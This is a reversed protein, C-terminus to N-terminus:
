KNVWRRTADRDKLQWLHFTVGAYVLMVLIPNVWFCKLNNLVKMINLLLPSWSLIKDSLFHCCQDAPNALGKGVHIELHSDVTQSRNLRTYLSLSKLAHNVSSSGTCEICSSWYSTLSAELTKGRVLCLMHCKSGSPIFLLTLGM